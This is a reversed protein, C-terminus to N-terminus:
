PGRRGVALAAVPTNGSLVKAAEFGCAKIITQGRAYQMSANVTSNAEGQVSNGEVTGSLLAAGYAGSDVSKKPNAGVSVGIYM